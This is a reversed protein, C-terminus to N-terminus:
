EPFNGSVISRRIDGIEINQFQLISPRGAVADDTAINSVKMNKGCVAGNRPDPVMQTSRVGFVNIKFKTRDIAAVFWVSADDDGSVRNSAFSEFPSGPLQLITIPDAKPPFVCILDGGVLDKLALSKAGRLTDTLDETAANNFTERTAGFLALAMAILVPVLIVAGLVPIIRTLKSM